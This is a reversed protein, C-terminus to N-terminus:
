DEMEKPRFAPATGWLTFMTGPVGPVGASVKEPRGVPSKQRDPLRLAAPRTHPASNSAEPSNESAYERVRPLLGLRSGSDAVM